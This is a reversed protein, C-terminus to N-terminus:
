HTTPNGYRILPNSTKIRSSKRTTLEHNTNQNTNETQEIKRLDTNGIKDMETIVNPDEETTLTTNHQTEESENLKEFYM